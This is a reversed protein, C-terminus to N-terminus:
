TPELDEAPKQKKWFVIQGAEHETQNEFRIGARRGDGVIPTSRPRTM